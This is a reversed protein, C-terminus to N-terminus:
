LRAIQALIELIKRYRLLMRKYLNHIYNFGVGMGRIAANIRIIWLRYFDRKKRKGDWHASVLINNQAFTRTLRSHTGSAFVSKKTRRRQAIYGRTMSTFLYFMIM